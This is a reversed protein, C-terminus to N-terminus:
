VGCRRQVLSRVCGSAPLEPCPLASNEVSLGQSFRREPTDTAPCRGVDTQAYIPFRDPESFCAKSLPQGQYEGTV